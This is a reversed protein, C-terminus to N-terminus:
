RRADAKGDGSRDDAAGQPAEGAAGPPGGFDGNAADTARDLLRLGADNVCVNRYVTDGRVIRPIERYVERVVQQRQLELGRVHARAAGIEAYAAKLEAAAKRLDDGIEARVGDRGVDRGFFFAAILAALTLSVQIAIRQIM